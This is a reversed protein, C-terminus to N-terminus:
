FMGAPGSSALIAQITLLSSLEGHLKSADDNAQLIQSLLETDDAEKLTSERVLVDM